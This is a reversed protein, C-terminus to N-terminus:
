AQRYGNRDPSPRSMMMRKGDCFIYMCRVCVITGEDGRLDRGRLVFVDVEAINALQVFGEPPVCFKDFGIERFLDGHADFTRQQVIELCKAFTVLRADVTHQFTLQPCSAFRFPADPSNPM